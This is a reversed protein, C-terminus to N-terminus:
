GSRIHERMPQRHPSPHAATRHCGPSGMEYPKEDTKGARWTNMLKHVTGRCQLSRSSCPTAPLLLRLLLPSCARACPIRISGGLLLRAGGLGGAVSTIGLAIGLCGGLLRSSRCRSPAIRLGLAGYTGIALSRGRLLLLLLATGIASLLYTPSCTSLPLLRIRLM